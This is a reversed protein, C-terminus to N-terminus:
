SQNYCVSGTQTRCLPAAAKINVFSPAVLFRFVNDASAAFSAKLKHQSYNLIQPVAALKRNEKQILKVYDVHM